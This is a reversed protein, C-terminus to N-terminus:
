AAHNLHLARRFAYRKRPVFQIQQEAERLAADGSENGCLPLREADLASPMNELSTRAELLGPLSRSNEASNAGKRMSTTGCDAKSMGSASSGCQVKM